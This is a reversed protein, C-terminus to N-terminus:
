RSPQYVYLEVRLNYLLKGYTIVGTGSREFTRDTFNLRGTSCPRIIAQLVGLGLQSLM